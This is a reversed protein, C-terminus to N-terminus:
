PAFGDFRFKEMDGKGKVHAVGLSEGRCRGAVADWATRSLVVRGPVGGSEMRAATNVTDGWLDFLYQRCGIVGAVVPGFDVGARVDWGTPLAHAAAIMDQACRVCHVVPHEATPELLGAAAMFSDGITKIKQVGHRGAIEEWRETLQQLHGVVYEPRGANTECFPTFGVIDCFLVAVGEYRRPRVANTRKLEEVVKPPLIVHLLEDSRRREQEIQQLHLAERDRLQKKELCAGIRAKLLVGNFPKPLYDEAGLQVCAAVSDVEDFASIMIVPLACLKPDAKLERLVRYGNMHPMIIDLLMLDFPRTRVLDLAERGDAATAVEHGERQLWRCLTDRNYANDDVVLVSGTPAQAASAPLSRVVEAAAGDPVVAAVYRGSDTARVVLDNLGALIRKGLDRVEQLDTAFGELLQGEAEELWFESYGIIPNLPQRLDHRVKRLFEAGGGEARAPDLLDNVRALLDRGAACIKDLDAVFQEPGREAADRLLMETIGILATIPAALEERLSARWALRALEASRAAFREPCHPGPVLPRPSGDSM